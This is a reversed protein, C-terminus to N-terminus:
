YNEYPKMKYFFGYLDLRDKETIKDTDKVYNISPIVLTINNDDINNFIYNFKVGNEFTIDFIIKNFIWITGDKNYIWKSGPKVDPYNDFNEWIEVINPSLSKVFNYFNKYSKTM